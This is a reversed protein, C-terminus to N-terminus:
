RQAGHQRNGDGGATCRATRLGAEERHDDAGQSSCLECQM